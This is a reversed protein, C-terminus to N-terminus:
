EQTEASLNSPIQKHCAETQETFVSAYDLPPLDPILRDGDAAVFGGIDDNIVVGEGPAVEQDPPLLVTEQDFVEVRLVAGPHVALAGPSRREVLVIADQSAPGKEEEALLGGGVVARRRSGATGEERRDQGAL